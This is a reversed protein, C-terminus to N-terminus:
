KNQNVPLDFCITTGKGEQSAIEFCGRHHCIIEKALYLGLGLGQQEYFERDFQLFSDIEHHSCEKSFGRGSDIITFYARNETVKTLFHVPQGKSSFKFANDILEHIAFSFWDTIIPIKASFIALSLDETRNYKQSVEKAISTAIKEIDTYQFNKLCKNASFHIYLLYKNTIELLYKGSHNILKTLEIVDPNSLNEDDIIIESFGLIANLSTRFEHPVTKTIISKLRNASNNAFFKYKKAQQICINITYLLKKKTYPKLLVGDAGLKIAIKEVENESCSLILIIPILKEYAHKQIVSRTKAEMPFSLKPVDCLILDPNVCLAHSIDNTKNAAHYTRFGEVRLINATERYFEENDGIFLISTMNQNVGIPKIIYISFQTKKSTQIPNVTRSYFIM